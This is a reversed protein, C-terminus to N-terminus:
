MRERDIFWRGAARHRDNDLCEGPRDVPNYAVARGPGNGGAIM